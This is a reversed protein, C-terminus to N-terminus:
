NVDELLANFEDTLGKEALFENVTEVYGNRLARTLAICGVTTAAATVGVTIATKHDSVFEKAAAITKKIPNM